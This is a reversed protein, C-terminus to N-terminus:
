RLNTSCINAFSRRIVLILERWHRVSETRKKVACVLADEGTDVRIKKSNEIGDLKLWDFIIACALRQKTAM